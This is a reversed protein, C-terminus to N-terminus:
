LCAHLMPNPTRPGDFDFVHKYSGRLDKHHLALIHGSTQKYNEPSRGGSPRSVDKVESYSGSDM